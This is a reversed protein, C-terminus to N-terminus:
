SRSRLSVVITDTHMERADGLRNRSEVGVLVHVRDVSARTAADSIPTPIPTASTGSFYRFELAPGNSVLPGALPQNNASGLRRQIWRGDIGSSPGSRYTVEDYLYFVDGAAPPNGSAAGYPTGALDLTRVEVEPPLAAEGGLLCGSNTPDGVGTVRVEDTWDSGGTSTAVNAAFSTGDNTSYSANALAPMRVVVSGGSPAQCVVGWVRAARLRISDATAMELGDGHPVTRLESGILDLAARSNQQVEERASQMQVYRSQGEMLQFIVGVVLSSIILSVLVEILTFGSRDLVPREM